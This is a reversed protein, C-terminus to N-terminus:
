KKGAPDAPKKRSARPKAAPKPADAATPAANTAGTKAPAAEVAATKAAASKAKAPKLKATAKPPSATAPTEVPAAPAAVKATSAKPKPAAAKATAPKAAATKPAATKTASKPKAATKRAAPKANAAAAEGPPAAPPQKVFTPKFGYDTALETSSKVPTIGAQEKIADAVSEVKPDSPKLLGSPQEKGDAGIANFDKRIEEATKKLPSTLTNRLNRVEDLGTTRNIERQFENGMRRIQGMVKGVRGMVVPLDKPGIFILAVIGIVMMETWGVGLM